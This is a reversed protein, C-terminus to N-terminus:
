AAPAPPPGKDVASGMSPRLTDVTALNLEQVAQVFDMAALKQARRLLFPVPSSPEIQEYYECISNLVQIVDSRSRIPGRVTSESAGATSRIDLGDGTTATSGAEAGSIFPKIAALLEQLAKELVDFSITNGAGLTSTLFRDMGRVEEISQELALCQVAVDQSAARIAGALKAAEPSTAMAGAGPASVPRTSILQDFVIPPSGKPQCVPTAYLHDVVSLWGAFPGRPTTIASVINLRQTPDNNDTADLLPYLVPWYQELLGRILQLGDRFGPLGGTKLSGCCLMVAV